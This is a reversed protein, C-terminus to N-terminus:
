RTFISSATNVRFFQISDYVPMSARMDVFESEQSDFGRRADDFVAPAEDIVPPLAVTQIDSATIHEDTNISSGVISFVVVLFGGTILPATFTMLRNWRERQVSQNGFYRSCLLERRLEYRHVSDEPIKVSGMQDLLTDINLPSQSM